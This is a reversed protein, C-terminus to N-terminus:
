NRRMQEKNPRGGGGNRRREVEKRVMEKWTREVKLLKDFKEESVAKTFESKYRKRLNLIKEELELESGGKQNSERVLKKMDEQYSNYVPWFKQAEDSTLQLQKTIYAIKLSEIRESKDERQSYGAFSGVVTLLMITFLLSKM